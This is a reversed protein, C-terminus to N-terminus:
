GLNLFNLSFDPKVQLMYMNVRLYPPHSHPTFLENSLCIISFHSVRKPPLKVVWSPPVILNAHAGLDCMEDIKQM